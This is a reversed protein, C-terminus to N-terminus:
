QYELANDHRSHQGRPKCVPAIPANNSSNINDTPKHFRPSSKPVRPAVADPIIYFPKKESPPSSDNKSLQSFPIRSASMGVRAQTTYRRAYKPSLLQLNRTFDGPMTWTCPKADRARRRLPLALDRKGRRGSKSIIGAMFICGDCRDQRAASRARERVISTRPLTVCVPFKPDTGLRQNPPETTLHNPLQAFGCGSVWVELGLFSPRTGLTGM